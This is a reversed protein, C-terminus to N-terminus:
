NHRLGVPARLDNHVQALSAQGFHVLPIPRPIYGWCRVVSVNRLRTSSLIGDIGDIQIFRRQNNSTTVVAEGGVLLLKVGAFNWETAQIFARALTERAKVGEPLKLM